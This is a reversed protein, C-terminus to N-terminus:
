QLQFVQGRSFTRYLEIIHNGCLDSIELCVVLRKSKADKDSMTTLSLTTKMGTAGLREILQDTCFSTNSGQDFFAYKEVEAEKGKAKVKVPVLELGISLAGAGTSGCLGESM